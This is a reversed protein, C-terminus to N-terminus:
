QAISRDFTVTLEAAYPYTAGPANTTFGKITSSTIYPSSAFSTLLQRAAEENRLLVKLTVPQTISDPSLELQDLATGNPLLASVRLLFQSYRIDNDLLQKAKRLDNRLSTAAAQAPAFGSAQQENDRKLEDAIAGQNMMYFQAFALAGVLFVGAICLLVAYRILLTNSRAARIEKKAQPPLLNIM